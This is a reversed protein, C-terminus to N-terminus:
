ICTSLIAFVTMNRMYVNMFEIYLSVHKLHLMQNSWKVTQAHQIWAQQLPFLHLGQM